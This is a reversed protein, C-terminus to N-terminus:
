AIKVICVESKIDLYMQIDLESRPIDCFSILRESIGNEEVYAGSGINTGINTGINNELLDMYHDSGRVIMTVSGQTAKIEPLPAGASECADKIKEFGQGWTEIEGAKFEFFM